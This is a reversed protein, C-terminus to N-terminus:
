HYYYSRFQDDKVDELGNKTMVQLLEILKKQISFNGSNSYVKIIIEEELLKQANDDRIILNTM